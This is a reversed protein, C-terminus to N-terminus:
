KDTPPKTSAQVKELRLKSRWLRMGSAKASPSRMAPPFFSELKQAAELLWGHWDGDERDKWFRPEIGAKDAIRYLLDTFDDHWDQQPRGSKGVHM